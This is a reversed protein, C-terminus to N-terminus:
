VDREFVTRRYNKKARVISKRTIELIEENLREYFDGAMMIDNDNVFKRLKQKSIIKQTM